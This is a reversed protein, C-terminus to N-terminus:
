YSYHLILQLYKDDYFKPKKTSNTNRNKKVNTFSISTRKTYDRSFESNDNESLADALKVDKYQPDFKPDIYQEGVSYSM